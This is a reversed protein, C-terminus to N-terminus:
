FVYANVILVNQRIGKQIKLLGCVLLDTCQCMITLIAWSKLFADESFEAYIKWGKKNALIIDLL